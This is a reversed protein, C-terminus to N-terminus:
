LFWKYFTDEKYHEIQENYHGFACRPCKDLNISYILDHHAISNWYDIIGLHPCMYGDNRMRYDICKYCNGDAAFVVLLPTARCESFTRHKKFNSDVRGFNTYVHFYSSELENCKRIQYLINDIDFDIPNCDGLINEFAMPRAFFNTFGLNRALRCADLIEYQNLDSILFKFTIDIGRGGDSSSILNRCNKVLKNFANSGKAKKWTDEYAADFSVSCIDAYDITADLNDGDLLVGNTSVMVGLGLEHSCQLISPYDPHLTPEGGGAFCVSKVGWEKCMDLVDLVHSTELTDSSRYNRSNCWKCGLNCMNTLDLAISIPPKYNRELIADFHSSHLLGKMQGFSSYLKNMEFVMPGCTIMM